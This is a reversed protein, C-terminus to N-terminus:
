SKIARLTNSLVEFVMIDIRIGTYFLEPFPYEFYRLECSTSTNSRIHHSM